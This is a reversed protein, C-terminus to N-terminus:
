SPWREALWADFAQHQEPTMPRTGYEAGTETAWAQWQQSIWVIFEHGAFCRDPHAALYAAARLQVPGEHGAIMSM